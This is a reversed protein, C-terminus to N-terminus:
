ESRRSNRSLRSRLEDHHLVHSVKMSPSARKLAHASHPELTDDRLLAEAAVAGSAATPDLHLVAIVPTTLKFCHLTTCLSPRTVVSARRRAKNRDSRGRAPCACRCMRIRPATRRAVQRTVNAALAVVASAFALRAVFVLGDHRALEPDIVLWPM